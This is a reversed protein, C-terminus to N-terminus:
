TINNQKVKFEIIDKLTIVIKFKLVIKKWKKSQNM